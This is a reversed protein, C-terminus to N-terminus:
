RWYSKANLKNLIKVGVGQRILATGDASAGDAETM